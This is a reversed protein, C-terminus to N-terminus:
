DATAPCAKGAPLVVEDDADATFGKGQRTPWITTRSLPFAGTGVGLLTAYTTGFIPAYPMTVDAVILRMGHRNYVAPIPLDAPAPGVAWKAAGATGDSSCVRVTRSNGRMYIGIAAVRIVANTADFPQYVLKAAALIDTMTAQAMPSVTDGRSTLDAVTRSLLTTRRQAMAARALESGGVYILVLVPAILAFEVAAVGGQARRFRGLRRPSPPAAVSRM